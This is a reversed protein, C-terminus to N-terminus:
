LLLSPLMADAVKLFIRKKKKCRPLPNLHPTL